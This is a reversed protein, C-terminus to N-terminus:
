AVEVVQECSFLEVSSGESVICTDWGRGGHIEGSFLTSLDSITDNGRGGYLKDFGLRGRITDNGGLGYIVDDCDTGVLHDASRSGVVTVGCYSLESAHAAPTALAPVAMAVAVAASILFRKM